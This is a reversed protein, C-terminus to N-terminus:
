EEYFHKNIWSKLLHQTFTKIHKEVLQGNKFYCVVPCDDQDIRLVKLYKQEKESDCNTIDIRVLKTLSDTMEYALGLVENIRETIINDLSSDEKDVYFMCIVDEYLNIIRKIEKLSVKAAAM